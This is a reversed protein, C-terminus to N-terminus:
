RGFVRAFPVLLLLRGPIIAHGRQPDGAGGSMGYQGAQPFASAGAAGAGEFTEFDDGGPDIFFVINPIAGMVGGVPTGAAGECCGASVWRECDCGGGAACLRVMIPIGAKTGGLGAAGAFGLAPAGPCLVTLPRGEGM